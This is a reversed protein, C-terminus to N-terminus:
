ALGTQLGDLERRVRALREAEDLGKLPKLAERSTRLTLLRQRFFSLRRNAEHLRAAHAPTELRAVIEPLAELTHCVLLIDCGAAFAAESREPLDGWADLAKMELDDSFAVGGFGLKSRLLGGIIAPSLTAPRLEPDYAPYVAHGIMVAGALRGLAEFPDLDARLVEAPRDIRAVNFHTDASAGGLGPFHKVCGGVGGAQLGRLFARARPTVEGPTIGFYRGDLANDVEGRNLDVVPAFDLDIDFLRLAQAVWTGAQLAVTAPHLALVGAAPAPGVLGKLRDVRGGEADIALIAEPLVRRLDAVLATLQEADEINRGFLILGGPQHEALLEESAPDLTPGPIAVFVQEAARM